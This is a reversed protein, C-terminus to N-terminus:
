HQNYYFKEVKTGSFRLSNDPLHIHKSQGKTRRKGPDLIARALSFRIYFRFCFFAKQRVNGHFLPPFVGQDVLSFEAVNLHKISRYKLRQYFVRWVNWRNLSICRELTLSFFFRQFSRKFLSTLLRKRKVTSSLLVRFM